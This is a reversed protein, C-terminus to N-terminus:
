AETNQMWNVSFLDGLCTGMRRDNVVADSGCYAGWSSKTADSATMAYVNMDETLDPFMSGSECSELYFVLEKFMKKEIM